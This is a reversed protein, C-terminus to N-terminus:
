CADIPSPHAILYFFRVIDKVLRGDLKAVLVSLYTRLVLFISHLILILTQKARLSPFALRLISILQTM